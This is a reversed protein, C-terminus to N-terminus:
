ISFRYNEPSMGTIRRFIRSFYGSDSFGVDIAIETISLEKQRLLIKAQHIRYRQLYDIPTAGLEQRFCYTLHDDSINVYQAIDRRSIKESFQEHIYAMAKRVLRQAEGSIQRKRELASSIHDVTEELTYLGKELVTTVGQNLRAMEDEALVKGTLVIVPIKRTNEHEQLYDLVGFGDLKPMQLDLLILDIKEQELIEIAELGNHAKLVHHEASLSQVIRANMDLINPEDDVVLITHTPYEDNMFQWSKDIVQKLVHPEIPKTLLSFEFLSSMDASLKFFLVSIENTIPNRKLIKLADWPAALSHIDVLILDPIFKYSPPKQTNIHDLEFIEVRIGRKNLESILSNCYAPQKTMILISRVAEPLTAELNVRDFPAPITPLTFSFTSGSGIEGKSEIQISGGHLDVLKKSIALGLGLGGYGLSTSTDGQRFENFIISQDEESIGLGTDLVLVTVSDEKVKVELSVFGSETFKVANNILNLMIQRLRMRDGWVWPGSEPLVAKWALGKENALQQGSASIINLEHGLDVFDNNLRLQGADSTALDLVDGILEGLHQSYQYIQEIDKQISESVSSENEDLSKLVINGLGVILNLPTRLEHGIVSLFKSKMRNAEEALHRGEVADSFLTASKLAGSIQQVIAGYLDIQDCDVIVYGFQGSERPFPVLTFRFALEDSIMASSPFLQSRFRLSKQNPNFVDRVTSWAGPNEQDSEMLAIWAMHINLLPLHRNLISYIQDIDTTSLLGASLLNLRNSRWGLNSLFLRHQFQLFSNIVFHAKNLLADATQLMAVSKNPHHKFDIGILTVADQWIYAEEENEASNNLIKKLTEEFLGAQNNEIESLFSNELEQYQHKYDTEDLSQAQQMVVSSTVWPKTEVRNSLNREGEVYFNESSKCGCSERVMLKTKVRLMDQSKQQYRIRSNILELAQQGIHFLPIHVSTLLPKQSTDELRNDFGIIAIDGPVDLGITKLAHMAGLAMEDNSALIASFEAGSNRFQQIADIGGDYIHWGFAVCKPDYSLQNERLARKYAELREGTDGELDDPSGAIFAIKKHGHQVLHNIAEIVGVENDVALTSGKEGSGIFQIPFGKSILNQVYTSRIESHLPAFIILGDTNWPGIPVYDSDSAILPWAPHNPQNVDSESGLGCGLLLNCDVLRSARIIGKYAPILYNLSTATNYFQWGALVGITPKNGHIFSPM